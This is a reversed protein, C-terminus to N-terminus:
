IEIMTISYTMLVAQAFFLLGWVFAPIKTINRMTTADGAEKRKQISLKLIVMATKVNEYLLIAVILKMLLINLQPIFFYTGIIISGFIIIWFVGFSNRVWMLLNILLATVIVYLIMEYDEKVYLYAMALAMFSAFPYGAITVLLRTFKNKTVHSIAGETTSSIDIKKIKGLTLIAMLAHGNEHFMTNLCRFCVGVFPLSCFVMGVLFLILFERIDM